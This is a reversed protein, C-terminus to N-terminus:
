EGHEVQQSRVWDWYGEWTRGQEIMIQARFRYVQSSNSFLELSGDLSTVADEIQGAQYQARGLFFLNGPNLSDRRRAEQWAAVAEDWRNEAELIKALGAWAFSNEPQILLRRRAREEANQWATQVGTLVALDEWARSQRVLLDTRNWPPCYFSATELASVRNEAYSEALNPQYRALLGWEDDWWFTHQLAWGGLGVLLALAAVPLGWPSWGPRNEETRNPTTWLLVLPWVATPYSNTLGNGLVVLLCVLEPGPRRFQARLGCLVWGGWFFLGIWGTESLVKLPESHPNEPRRARRLLDPPELPRNLLYADGFHGPGVGLFPHRLSQQLASTWLLKRADVSVDHGKVLSQMTNSLDFQKKGTSTLSIGWALGLVAWTVLWFKDLRREKILVWLTVLMVVGTLVLNSGRTAVLLLSVLCFLGALWGAPGRRYLFSWAWPCLCALYMALYNPNALGAITRVRSLNPDSWAFPDLGLRQLWSYTLTLVFGVTMWRDRGPAECRIWLLGAGVTVLDLWAAHLGNSLASLLSWAFWATLFREPWGWRRSPALCALGAATLWCALKPASTPDACRMDFLLPLLGLALLASLQAPKM